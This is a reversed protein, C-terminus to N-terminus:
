SGFLRSIFITVCIITTACSLTTGSSKFPMAYPAQPNTRLYFTGKKTFDIGEGMLNTTAGDCLGGQLIIRQIVYRIPKFGIRSADFDAISGCEWATFGEGSNISETM